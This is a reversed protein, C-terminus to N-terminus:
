DWLQFYKNKPKMKFIEDVTEKNTPCVFYFCNKIQEELKKLKEFDGDVLQFLFNTQGNSRNTKSTIWKLKEDDIKYKYEETKAYKVDM